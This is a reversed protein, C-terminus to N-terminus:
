PVMLECRTKVRLLYVTPVKWVHLIGAFLWNMEPSSRILETVVAHFTHLQLAVM